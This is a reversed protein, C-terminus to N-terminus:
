SAASGVVYLFAVVAFVAFLLVATEIAIAVVIGLWFRPGVAPRHAMDRM